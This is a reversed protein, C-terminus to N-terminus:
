TVPGSCALGWSGARSQVMHVLQATSTCHSQDRQFQQFFNAHNGPLLRKQSQHPHPGPLFFGGENFDLWRTGKDTTNASWMVLGVGVGLLLSAGAEHLWRIRYHKIVLGIVFASALCVLQLLFASNRLVQLESEPAGGADDDDAMSLAHARPAFRAGRRVRPTSRSAISSSSAEFLPRAAFCEV